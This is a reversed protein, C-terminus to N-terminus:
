GGIYSGGNVHIFQGTIYSADQSALYVYAPAVEAPQGARGILTNTGFTEIHKQDFTAVILPTWIPGPAVGNVRIGRQALNSALSYTMSEIAGNTAAYDILMQHGRFSTVSGTNIINAGRSMHPLVAAIMHFYSYVNTEFTRKLQQASIDEPTEKSWQAGLHNVLVDIRGFEHQTRAVSERCHAEDRADGAISLCRRGESQVMRLTEKADDHEDLYMFAVDAGERAFHVAVARGIGSDAGTILACQGELRGAGRYDERITVPQLRMPAQKGPQQFQERPPTNDSGDNRVSGTSKASSVM